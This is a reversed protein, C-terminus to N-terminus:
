AAVTVKRRKPGTVFMRQVIKLVSNAEPPQEMQKGCQVPVTNVTQGAAFATDADMGWREVIFGETLHTLTSYAKNTAAAPEQPRFVYTLALTESTRGAREYAQTDGLRKDVVPSEDGGPAFGDSTLYYTLDVVSAATLEAVTPAAPNALAPVWAVRLNGDGLVSAPTTM